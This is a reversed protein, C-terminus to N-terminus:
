FQAWPERSSFVRRMLAPRDICRLDLAVREPFTLDARRALRWLGILGPHHARIDRPRRGHARLSSAYTRFEDRPM